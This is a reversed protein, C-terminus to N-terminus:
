SQGSHTATLPLCLITLTRLLGPEERHDEDGTVVAIM